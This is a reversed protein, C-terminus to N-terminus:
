ETSAATDTAEILKAPLARKVHIAGFGWTLLPFAIEVPGSVPEARPPIGCLNEILRIMQGCGSIAENLEGQGVAKGELSAKGRHVIGNRLERLKAFKVSFDADGLLHVDTLAVVVGKLLTELSSERLSQPILWSSVSPPLLATAKQEILLKTASELASYALVISAPEPFLAGADLLLNRHLYDEYNVTRMSDWQAVDVVPNRIVTLGQLYSVRYQKPDEELESGDDNLYHVFVEGEVPRIDSNQTANRLMLLFENVLEYGLIATWNKLQNAAENQRSRDFSDKRIDIVVMDMEYVPLGDYTYRESAKPTTALSPGLIGNSGAAQQLPHVILDYDGTSRSLASFTQASSVCITYPLRFYMRAIL